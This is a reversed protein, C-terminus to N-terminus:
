LVLSWEGEQYIGEVSKTWQGEFWKYQVNTNLNTVYQIDNETSADFVVSWRGTTINYEIIDNEKAIFNRNDGGGWVEASERNDGSGIAGLTLYRVNQGTRAPNRGQGPAYNGGSDYMLDIINKNYPDIIADIGGSITNSPFTDEVRETVLLQTPNAQNYGVRLISETVGDPSMLRIESLGDNLSGFLDVLNKWSAGATNSLVADLNTSILNSKILTVTNGSYMLAYGYPQTVRRGIYSIDDIISKNLNGNEDYVSSIAKYIVGLRNVRAPPSIWIPLEFTMTSVSIDNSTGMPVTRSDWRTGTLMVTSLSTWDIYNDTSQIELSPNFLTSIQELIQLKQETNSTWIDLALTLKYPVPMPREVSFNDYNDSDYAGTDPNYRRQRLQMKSVHFPEQVRPRDYDFGTIYVSMAPVSTLSNESNNRIIQAAQRSPDGYMVPVRQIATAGGADESGFEVYFNSVMRIFQQIFRRIQGDYFFNQHYSDAM